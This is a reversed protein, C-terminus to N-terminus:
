KKNENKASPRQQNEAILFNVIDQKETDKFKNQSCVEELVQNIFGFDLDYDLMNKILTFSSSFVAVSRQKDTIVKEKRKVLKDIEDHILAQWYNLWFEKSHYPKANKLYTTM